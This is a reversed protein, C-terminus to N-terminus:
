LFDDKELSAQYADLIRQQAVVTKNNKFGPHCKCYNEYEDIDALTQEFSEQSHKINRRLEDSFRLIRVRCNIVNKETFKEDIENQVKVVTDVKKELDNVRSILGRNMREGIWNLVSSIPNVKIPTVEIFISLLAAVGALSGFIQGLNMEM